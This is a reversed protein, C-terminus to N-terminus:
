DFKVLPVIFNSTQFLACIICLKKQQNTLFHAYSGCVHMVYAIALNATEPLAFAACSADITTFFSYAVGYSSLHGTVNM